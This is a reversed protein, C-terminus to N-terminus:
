CDNFIVFVILVEDVQPWILFNQSESFAEFAFSALGAQLQTTTAVTLCWLFVYVKCSEAM